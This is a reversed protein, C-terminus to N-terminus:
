RKLWPLMNFNWCPNGEERLLDAQRWAFPRLPAQAHLAPSGHWSATMKRRQLFWFQQDLIQPCEKTGQPGRALICVLSFRGSKERLRRAKSRGLWGTHPRTGQRRRSTRTRRCLPRCGSGPAPFRRLASQQGRQGDLCRRQDGQHPHAEDSVDNTDIYEIGSLALSARAAALESWSASTFSSRVLHTPR